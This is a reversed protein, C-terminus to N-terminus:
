RKPYRDVYRNFRVMQGQNSLDLAGKWEINNLIGKGDVSDAIAWLNEPTEPLYDALRMMDTAGTNEIEEITQTLHEVTLDDGTREALELNSRFNDLMSVPVNYESEYHDIIAGRLEDSVDVEYGDRPLFGYRAWAYSGMSVNADLHVEEIGIEEYLNMSERLFEKALGKGRMEYGGIVFYQHDAIARGTDYDLGFLRDVKIDNVYDRYEVYIGDDNFVEFMVTVNDSGNPNLTEEFMRAVQEPDIDEGMARHWVEVFREDNHPDPYLIEFGTNREANEFDKIDIKKGKRYKKGEETKAKSEEPVPAEEETFLPQPTM